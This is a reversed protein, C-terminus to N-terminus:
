VESIVDFGKYSGVVSYGIIKVNDKSIKRIKKAVENLTAGSGTADDIILVNSKIKQGPNVAITMRANLIRDELKRLSKQAVKTQSPVKVAMIVPLDIKLAKKLVDLFQVKRDITPPIFCLQGINYKELIHVVAPKIIKAIERIIEKNQSSKGVYVLQGLKTKGFYDINYFDSFFINDLYLHNKGSLVTKKGSILGNKRVKEITKLKKIYKLKEKEFDFKNKDCWAVFGELGRVVEGSPSVYIYNQEIYANDGDTSMPVSGIEVNAFYFVKPTTGAKRILEEDLLARLHKYTTQISVGLMKALESSRIPGYKKIAELASKAEKSIKKM